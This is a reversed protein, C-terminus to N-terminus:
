HAGIWFAPHRASPSPRESIACPQKKDECVQNHSRQEDQPLPLLRNRGSTSYFSLASIGCPPLMFLTTNPNTTPPMRPIKSPSVAHNVGATRECINVMTIPDVKLPSIAPTSIPYKERFTFESKAPMMKPNPIPSIRAYATAAM